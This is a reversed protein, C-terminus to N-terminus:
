NLSGMSRGYQNSSKNTTKDYNGILTPFICKWAGIPASTIGIWEDMSGKEDM